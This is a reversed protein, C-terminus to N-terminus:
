IKCLCVTAVLVGTEIPLLTHYFLNIMKEWYPPRHEFVLLPARAAIDKKPQSGRTVRIPKIKLQDASISLM